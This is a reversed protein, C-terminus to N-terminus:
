ALWRWPMSRDNAETEEAASQRLAERISQQLQAPAAYYPALSRINVQQERIQAYAEACRQCGALHAEVEAKLGLELEEDLYGEILERSCNMQSEGDEVQCM